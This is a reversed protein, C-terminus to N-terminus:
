DVIRLAPRFSPDRATFFRPYPHRDQSLIQGNRDEPSKFFACFKCASICIDTYNINRDVVYTVVPQPHHRMRVGHALLGLQHLSAEHELRLFEEGNIRDGAEIKARITHM